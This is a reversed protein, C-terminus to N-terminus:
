WGLVGSSAVALLDDGWPILDRGRRRAAGGRPNAGRVAPVAGEGGGEERRKM